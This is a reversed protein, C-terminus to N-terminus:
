HSIVIAYGRDEVRLGFLDQAVSTIANVNNKPFTGGIQLRGIGADALILKKTNYRNIEAAADALPTRNFILVGRLWGLNDTLSHTSLASISLSTATATIVKRPTLVISQAKNNRDIQEFRVIGKLVAVRLRGADRRVTFETGLDTIRRKGVLVLFPRTEDHKIRFYAEGQDLWVKRESRNSSIRITTNTNLDIQSGDALSLTKQGGIGTKYITETGRDSLTLGVVGFMAFLAVAGLLAMRKSGSSSESPAKLAAMPRRLATLRDTRHLGAELRLFAIHHAIDMALWADLANQDAETWAGFSRRELWTAAQANTELAEGSNRRSVASM